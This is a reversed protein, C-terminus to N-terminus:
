DKGQKIDQLLSRVEDLTSALQAAEGDDADPDDQYREERALAADLWQFDQPELGEPVESIIDAAERGFEYRMEKLKQELCKDKDEIGKRNDLEPLLPTSHPIFDKHFKISKQKIREIETMKMELSREHRKAAMLTLDIISNQHEQKKVDKTDLGGWNKFMQNCEKRLCHLVQFTEVGDKYEEAVATKRGCTPCKFIDKGYLPNSLEQKKKTKVGESIAAIIIIIVFVTFTSM